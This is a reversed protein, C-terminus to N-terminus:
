FISVLTLTADASGAARIGWISGEKLVISAIFGIAAVYLGSITFRTKVISDFYEVIAEYESRVAEPDDVPKIRDDM